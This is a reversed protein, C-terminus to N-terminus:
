WEWSNPGWIGLRDGPNVGIALMGAALRDAESLVQISLSCHESMGQLNNVLRVTLRGSVKSAPFLQRAIEGNTRRRRWCSVWRNWELNM